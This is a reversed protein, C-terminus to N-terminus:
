PSLTKLTANHLASLGKGTKRKRVQMQRPKQNRFMGRTFRSGLRCNEMYDLGSNCVRLWQYKRRQGVFHKAPGMQYNKQASIASQNRKLCSFTWWTFHIKLSLSLHLSCYTYVWKKFGVLGAEPRTSAKVMYAPQCQQLPHSCASRHKPLTITPPILYSCFSSVSPVAPPWQVWDYGLISVMIEGVQKVSLMSPYRLHQRAVGHGLHFTSSPSQHLNGYASCRWPM